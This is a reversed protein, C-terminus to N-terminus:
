EQLIYSSCKEDRIKNFVCELMSSIGWTKAFETEQSATSGTSLETPFCRELM